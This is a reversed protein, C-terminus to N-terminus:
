FEEEPPPFELKCAEKAASENEGVMEAGVKGGIANGTVSLAVSVMDVCGQYNGGNVERHYADAVSEAIDRIHETVELPTMADLIHPELEEFEELKKPKKIGLEPVDQWNNM